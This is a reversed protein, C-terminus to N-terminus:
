RKAPLRRLRFGLQGLRRGFTRERHARIRSAIARGPTRFEAHSTGLMGAGGYMAASMCHKRALSCCGHVSINSFGRINPYMHEIARKYLAYHSGRLLYVHNNQDHTDQQSLGCCCRAPQKGTRSLLLVCVSGRRRHLAARTLHKPQVWQTTPLKTARVSTAKFPVALPTM